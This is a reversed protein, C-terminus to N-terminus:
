RGCGICINNIKANLAGCYNCKWHYETSGSPPNYPYVPQLWLDYYGGEVMGASGMSEGNYRAGSMVLRANAEKYYEHFIDTTELAMRVTTVPANFQLTFKLDQGSVGYISTYYKGKYVIYGSSVWVVCKVDGKIQCWLTFDYEVGKEYTKIDGAIRQEDFKQINYFVSNDRRFEDQTISSRTVAHTELVEEEFVTNECSTAILCMLFLYIFYYKKM